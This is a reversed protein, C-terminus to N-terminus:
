RPLAAWRSAVRLMVSRLRPSDIRRIALAVDYPIPARPQLPPASSVPAAYTEPLPAVRFRLERVVRASAIRRIRRLLTERMAVLEQLWVSHKVHILLVGVRLAVPKAAAAIQPGVADQWAPWVGLAERVRSADGIAEALITGIHTM